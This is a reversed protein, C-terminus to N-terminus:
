LMVRHDVTRKSHADCDCSATEYGPQTRGCCRQPAWASDLRSGLSFSSSVSPSRAFGDRNRSKGPFAATGNEGRVVMIVEILGSDRAVPFYDMHRLLATVPCSFDM